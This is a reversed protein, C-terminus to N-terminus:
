RYPSECHLAADGAGGHGDQFEGEFGILGDDGFRSFKRPHATRNLHGGVGLEATASPEKAHELAHGAAAGDEHGFVGPSSANAVLSGPWM